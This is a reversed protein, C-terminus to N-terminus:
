FSDKQYVSEIVKNANLAIFGTFYENWKMDSKLKINPYRWVFEIFQEPISIIGDAIQVNIISGKTSSQEIGVECSGKVAGGTEHLPLKLKEKIFFNFERISSFCKMLHISIAFHNPQRGFVLVWALLENFENVQKFERLTPLPRDRETFYKILITILKKAANGDGLYAHESLKQIESLPTAKINKTLKEIVKRINIPLEELLFDAVVVQPLTNEVPKGISCREAMWMFNNQKEALYDRGQVEYGISSFIQCLINLGTKTSPLDIIAYHDLLLKHHPFNKLKNEIITISTVTNKYNIWLKKTLETRVWQLLDMKEELQLSM